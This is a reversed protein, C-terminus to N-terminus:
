KLQLQLLLSRAIFTFDDPSSGSAASAKNSSTAKRNEYTQAILMLLYIKEESYDPTSGDELIEPYEKGTANKLYNFAAAMQTKILEDDDDIDVRLHNKVEELTIILNIM